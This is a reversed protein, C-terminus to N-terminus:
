FRVIKQKVGCIHERIMNVEDIDYLTDIFAIDYQKGNIRKEVEDVLAHVAHITVDNDNAFFEARAKDVQKDLAYKLPSIVLVNLM